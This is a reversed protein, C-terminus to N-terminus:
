RRSFQRKRPNRQIRPDISIWNDESALREKVRAGVLDELIPQQLPKGMSDFQGSHGTILLNGGDHVYERLM